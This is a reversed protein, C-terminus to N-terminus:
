EKVWEKRMGEVMDCGSGAIGEMGEAGFIGLVPSTRGARQNWNDRCIPQCLLLMREDCARDAQASECSGIEGNEVSVM